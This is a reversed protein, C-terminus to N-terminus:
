KWRRGAWEAASGGIMGGVVLTALIEPTVLLRGHDLMLQFVGLIAEMPGHYLMRLARIVMVYLSYALLAFFVITAATRVGTTMSAVYGRGAMAGSIMWGCVLGIAAGGPGFLGAPTGEPLRDVFLMAGIYGLAAFALAAFLKAATPM